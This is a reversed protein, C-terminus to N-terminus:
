PLVRGNQCNMTPGSYPTGAERWGRVECSIRRVNEAGPLHLGISGTLTVEKRPGLSIDRAGADRILFGNSDQWEIRTAYRWFSDTNNKITLEYAFTWEAAKEIAQTSLNSVTFPIMATGTTNPTRAPIKTPATTPTSAQPLLTPQAPQACALLGVVMLLPVGVQQFNRNLEM